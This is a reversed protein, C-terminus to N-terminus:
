FRKLLSARYIQTDYENDAKANVWVSFVSVDLTFNHAFQKKIGFKGAHSIASLRYATWRRDPYEKNFADDPEIAKAADILGFIDGPM